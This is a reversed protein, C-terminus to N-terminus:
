KSLAAYVNKQFSIRTSHEGMMAVIQEQRLRDFSEERIKSKNKWLLRQAEEFNQLVYELNDEKFIDRHYFLDDQYRFNSPVEIVRTRKYKEIVSILIFGGLIVLCLGLFSLGVILSVPDSYADIEINKVAATGNHWIAYVYCPVKSSLPYDAFSSVTFWKGYNPDILAQLQIITYRAVVTHNVVRCIELKYIQYVELYRLYGVIIVVCGVVFSAAAAILLAYHLCRHM